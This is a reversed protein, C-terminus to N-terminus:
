ECFLSGFDVSVGRNHRVKEKVCAECRMTWLEREVERGEWGFSERVRWWFEVVRFMVVLSPFDGCWRKEM